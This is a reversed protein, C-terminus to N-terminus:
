RGAMIGVHPTEKAAAPRSQRHSFRIVRDIVTDVDADTLRLHLPLSIIRESAQEANPCLGRCDAFMRYNTNTLYHVGPFIGCENLYVMMRDRDDVTIQYLHRSSECGPPVPVTAVREQGGFGSDYRAAIERRRANDRELYPLQALAIAAMISNGHYKFGVYEVDYLWKYTGGESTRTYTDKNIGLWTKKRAIADLHEDDFCIMGSDATPLNKVAQFSYVTADGRPTRGHLRTGAMHAADLILKIGHAACLSQIEELRGTSGGLGVFIVARTRPTILQEVSRPDLCLYEDIDAFVPKLGEYLIAHNTSVFTLPTTIIEDGDKWGYEEKFINLALHLGATASNLFHAHPLGTHDKWRNEIEVTKFGLGTWGRELCERIEALVEEVAFSPVFLQISM